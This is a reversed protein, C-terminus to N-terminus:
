IKIEEWSTLKYELHSTGLYVNNSEVVDIGAIGKSPIEFVGGSITKSIFGKYANLDNDVFKFTKKDSDVAILTGEVTIHNNTSTTAKEMEYVVSQVQQSTFEVTKEDLESVSKPIYAKIQAGLNNIAFSDLAKKLKYVAKQNTVSPITEMLSEQNMKSFLEMVKEVAFKIKDDYLLNSIVDSELKVGFSAAYADTVNMQTKEMIESSIKSNLTSDDEMATASIVQQLNLLTQGLVSSPIEQDHGDHPRLSLEITYRQDNISIDNQQKLNPNSLETTVFVDEDAIWDENLDFKNDGIEYTITKGNERVIFFYPSSFNKMLNHISIKKTELGRLEAISIPIYMWTNTDSDEEWDVLNVFFLHNGEGSFASYMIPEDYFDYVKNIKIDGFPSIKLEQM